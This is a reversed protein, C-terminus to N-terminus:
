TGRAIDDALWDEDANHLWHVVQEPTGAVLFDVGDVWVKSLGKGGSTVPGVHDIPVWARHEREGEGMMRQAPARLGLLRGVREPEDASM